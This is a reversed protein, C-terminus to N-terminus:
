RPIPMSQHSRCSGYRYVSQSKGEFILTFDKDGAKRRYIRYKQAGLVKGWSLDVKGKDLNLHLGEPYHPAQSTTYVPYEQAFVATHKGNVSLARVHIKGAPQPALKYVSRTTTGVETWTQGNDRSTEIKVKKASAPIDLYILTGNPTYETDIINPHCLPTVGRAYEILAVGVPM